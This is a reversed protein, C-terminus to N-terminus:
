ALILALVVSQVQVFLGACVDGVREEVGEVKGGGLM